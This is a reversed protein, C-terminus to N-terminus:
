TRRPETPYVKHNEDWWLLRFVHGSRFGWLRRRSGLRFRFLEEEVEDFHPFRDRIRNKASRPLSDIPMSHHKKGNNTLDQEVEEWTRGSTEVMFDLLTKSENSGLSWSWECSDGCQYDLDATSWEVKEKRYQNLLVSSSAVQKGASNLNTAQAPVNKRNNEQRAQKKRLRKSPAM